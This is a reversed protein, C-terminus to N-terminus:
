PESSIGGIGDTGHLVQRKTADAHDKDGLVKIGRGFLSLCEDGNVTDDILQVDALQLM